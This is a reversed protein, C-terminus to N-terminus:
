GKSSGARAVAAAGRAAELLDRILEPAVYASGIQGAAGVLLCRHVVGQEAVSSEFAIAARGDIDILFPARFEAREGPGSAPMLELLRSTSAAWQDLVAPEVRYVDRDPGKAVSLTAAGDRVAIEIRIADIDFAATQGPTGSSSDSSSVSGAATTTVLSSVPGARENAVM